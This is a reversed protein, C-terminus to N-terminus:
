IGELAWSRTVANKGQASVDPVTFVIVFLTLISKEM